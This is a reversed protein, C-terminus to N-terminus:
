RRCRSAGPAPAIQRGVVEPCKSTQRAPPLARRLADMRSQMRAINREMRAEDLLLLPTELGTLVPM